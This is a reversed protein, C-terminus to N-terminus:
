KLKNLVSKFKLFVTQLVSELFRWSLGSPVYADSKRLTLPLERFYWFYKNQAPPFRHYKNLVYWQINPSQYKFGHINKDEMNWWTREARVGYGRVTNRNEWFPDSANPYDFDLFDQAWVVFTEDRYGPTDWIKNWSHGEADLGASITNEYAIVAHGREDVFQHKIQGPRKKGERHWDWGALRAGTADMDDIIKGIWNKRIPECSEEFYWIYRYQSIDIGSQKQLFWLAGEGGGFNGRLQFIYGFKEALKKSEEAISPNSCCLYVDFSYKADAEDLYRRFREIFHPTYYLPIIFLIDKM